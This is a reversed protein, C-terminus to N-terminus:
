KEEEWEDVIEYGISNDKIDNLKEIIEKHNKEDNMNKKKANMNNDKKAKEYYIKTIIWSFFAGIIGGIILSLWDIKVKKEGKKFIM